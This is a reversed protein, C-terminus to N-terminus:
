TIIRQHQNITDWHIHILKIRSSDFTNSNQFISSGSSNITCTSSIANNNHLGFPTNYPFDINRIITVKTNLFSSIHRIKDIGSFIHRHDIHCLCIYTTIRNIIYINDFLCLCTCVRVFIRIRIPRIEQKSCSIDLIM